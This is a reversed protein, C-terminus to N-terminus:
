ILLFSVCSLASNQLVCHLGRLGCVTTVTVTFHPNDTHINTGTLEIIRQFSPVDIVIQSKQPFCRCM